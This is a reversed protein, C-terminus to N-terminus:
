MCQGTVYERYQSPTMGTMRRFVKSFYQGDEPFGAMGAADSIKIDPRFRILSKALAIRLELVYASFKVHKYRLFLRGFYDENMFLVEKTLYRISLEPESLHEFVALLIREMRENETEKEEQGNEETQRRGIQGALFIATDRLMEWEGTEKDAEQERRPVTRGNGFVRQIWQYVNRKKEESYGLIRMKCSILYLESLIEELNEAGGLAAYDVLADLEGKAERFFEYTLLAEGTGTGGMDFLEETQGYLVRIEEPTGATSMAAQMTKGALRELEKRMRKIAALIKASDASQLLFVMENSFATELILREEGLLEELINHLVFQVIYDIENELRVTLICVALGADLEEMFLRYDSQIQERGMLLNYFVQEKARPLLTRITSSYHALKEKEMSREEISQKVKEIVDAIREEDCPKLIYHRVGEEMAQSTYEYEGYGSLVIFVTDPCVKKARRILEIGDMVPMKIDTMVIDPRYKEIKELGEVGNWATGALAIGYEKWPIFEAMGERELEEDDVILLKYM